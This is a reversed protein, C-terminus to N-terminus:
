WEEVKIEIDKSSDNIFMGESLFKTEAEDKSEAEVEYVDQKLYMHYIRFKQM